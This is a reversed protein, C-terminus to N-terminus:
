EYPYKSSLPFQRPDTLFIMSPTLTNLIGTYRNGDIDLYCSFIETFLADPFAYGRIPYIRRPSFAPFVVDFENCYKIPWFCYIACYLLLGCKLFRLNKEMLYNCVVLQPWNQLALTNCNPLHPWIDFQIFTKVIVGYTYLRHKFDIPTDWKGQTRLIDSEARESGGCPRFKAAHGM